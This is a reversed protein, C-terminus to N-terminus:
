KWDYNALEDAAKKVAIKGADELVRELEDRRKFGPDAFNLEGDQGQGVAQGTVLIEESAKSNASNVIMLGILVAARSTLVPVTGRSNKISAYVIYDAGLDKIQGEQEPSMRGFYEKAKEITEVKKRDLVVFKKTKEIAKQMRNGFDSPRWQNEAAPLDEHFVVVAIRKKEPEDALGAVAVCLVFSLSLISITTKM